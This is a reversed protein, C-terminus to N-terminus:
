DYRYVKKSKSIIEVPINMLKITVNALSENVGLNWTIDQVFRVMEGTRADVVRTGNPTGDSILKLIM